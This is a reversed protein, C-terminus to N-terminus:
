GFVQVNRMGAKQGAIKVLKTAFAGDTDTWIEVVLVLGHAALDGDTTRTDRITAQSGVFAKSTAHVAHNSQVEITGEVAWSEGNVDSAMHAIEVATAGDTMCTVRVHRTNTGPGTAGALRFHVEDLFALDGPAITMTHFATNPTNQTITTQSLDVIAAAAIRRSADSENNRLTNRKLQELTLNEFGGPFYCNEIRWNNCPELLNLAGAECWVNDLAGQEGTVQGARSTVSGFFKINRFFPRIIGAGGDAVRFFTSCVPLFVQLGEFGCDENTHGVDSRSALGLGTGTHAPFYMISDRIVNNRGTRIQCANGSGADNPGSNVNFDEFVCEACNENISVFAGPADSQGGFKTSADSLTGSFGRVRTRMSGEALECIKRWARFRINEILCDQMANLVLGNRGEFTLDRFVGDIVGGHQVAESVDSSIRLNSIHPAYILYHTSAGPLGTAMDEATNGIVPSDALLPAPVARDIVVQDGEVGVVRARLYNRYIEYQNGPGYAKLAGHLVVLDGPAFNAGTGAPLALEMGNTSELPYYTLYSTDWVMSVGLPLAAGVTHDVELPTPNVNRLEAGNGRIILRDRRIFPAEEVTYTAGAEGTLLAYDNTLAELAAATPESRMAISVGREDARRAAQRARNALGRAGIDLASM